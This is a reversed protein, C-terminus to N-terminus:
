LIFGITDVVDPGLTSSGPPTDYVLVQVLGANNITFTAIPTTGDTDYIVGPQSSCVMCHQTNSAFDSVTSFVVKSSDGSLVSQYTLSTSGDGNHTGSVTYNLGDQQASSSITHCASASGQCTSLTAVQTKTGNFTGVLTGDWASIRQENSFQASALGNGGVSYQYQLSENYVPQGFIQNDQDYLDAQISAQDSQIGANQMTLAQTWNGSEVLLANTVVDPTGTLSYPTNSAYHVYQFTAPAGSTSASATITYAENGAQTCQADTNEIVVLTPTGAISQWQYCWQSLQGSGVPAPSAPSPLTTPQNALLSQLGSSAEFVRRYFSGTTYWGDRIFQVYSPLASQLAPPLDSFQVPPEALLVDLSQFAGAAGSQYSTAGGSTQAVYLGFGGGLDTGMALSFTSSAPIQATYAGKADAQALWYNPAFTRPLGAQAFLAIGNAAPTGNASLTGGVSATSAPSVVVIRNASTFDPTGPLSVSVTIVDNLSGAGPDPALYYAFPTGPFPVVSGSQASWNITAGSLDLVKDNTDVGVADMQLMSGGILTSTQPLLVVGAINAQVGTGQTVRVSSSAQRVLRSQAKAAQTYASVVATSPSAAGAPDTVVILPQISAESQLQKQYTTAFSSKAPDFGGNADAVQLSGDPYIINARALTGGDKAGPPLAPTSGNPVTETSHKGNSFIIVHIFQPQPSAPPPTPSPVTHSSPAPGSGGGGGCAALALGMLLSGAITVNRVHAAYQDRMASRTESRSARHSDNAM